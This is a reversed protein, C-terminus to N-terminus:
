YDKPKGCKSCVKNFIGKFSAGCHQCKGNRKLMYLYINKFDKEAYRISGATCVIGSHPFMEKFVDEYSLRIFTPTVESFTYIRRYNRNKGPEKPTHTSKQFTNHLELFLSYKDFSSNLMSLLNECMSRQKDQNISDCECCFGLAGIKGGCKECVMSMDTSVGKKIEVDINEETICRNINVVSAYEGYGSYFCVNKGLVFYLYDSSSLLSNINNVGWARLLQKRSPYPLSNVKNALNIGLKCMEVAAPYITESMAKIKTEYELHSESRYHWLLVSIKGEKYENIYENVLKDAWLRIQSSCKKVHAYNKLISESIPNYSSSKQREYTCMVTQETDSAWQQMKISWRSVDDNHNIIELSIPNIPAFGKGKYTSIISDEHQEISKYMSNNLYAIKQGVFNLRGILWMLNECESPFTRFLDDSTLDISVNNIINLINKSIIKAIGFWGRYDDPYDETLQSYINLAKKEENLNIFTEANNLLREKEAEGKTIEVVGKVEQVKVKVREKTHKMGCSECIAFEGSENMALNGGCIDCVLASM